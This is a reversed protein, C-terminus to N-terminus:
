KRKPSTVTGGTALARTCAIQRAGADAPTLTHRRERSLKRVTTVLGSIALVTIILGSICVVIRGALGFAEGTHLPYQWEMLSSVVPSQLHEPLLARALWETAPVFVEHALNLYVSSLALVALVLWFWLGSARHADFNLRSGRVGWALRWKRWRLLPKPLTLLMGVICDLTWAIAVVGMFVMGTRRLMLTYHFRLLWPMLEQRSLRPTVTSRFGLVAASAPDVFVENIRREPDGDAPWNRVNL